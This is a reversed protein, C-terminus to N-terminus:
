WHFIAVITVTAHATVATAIDVNLLSFARQRCLRYSYVWLFLTGCWMQPTGEVGMWLLKQGTSCWIIEHARNIRMCMPTNVRDIGHKLTSTFPTYEPLGYPHLGLVPSQLGKSMNVSMKSATKSHEFHVAVCYWKQRINQTQEMVAKRKSRLVGLPVM